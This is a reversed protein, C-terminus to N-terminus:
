ELIVRVKIVCPKLLSNQNDSVVLRLEYNGPQLEGTNWNGGLLDEVVAKNGAAIPTWEERGEQRYEYKYFGLNPINVTGKLEVSGSVTDGSKPFTWELQGPICGTLAIVTQTQAFKEPTEKMENLSYTSTSLFDITPTAIMALGPFKVDALTVLVFESLLLLGFLFLITAASQFKRESVEKELSFYAKRRKNWSQFFRYLSFLFLIGFILYIGVEYTILFRLLGDM